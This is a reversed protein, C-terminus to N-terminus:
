LGVDRVFRDRDADSDIAEAIKTVFERRALKADVARKVVVKAIPGIRAILLRTAREVEEASPQPGM